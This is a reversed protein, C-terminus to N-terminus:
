ITRCVVNANSKYLEIGNRDSKSTIQNHHKAIETVKELTTRAGEITASHYGDILVVKKAINEPLDIDLYKRSEYELKRCAVIAGASVYINDGTATKLPLETAGSFALIKKMLDGGQVSNNWTALAVALGWYMPAVVKEFFIATKTYINYQQSVGVKVIRM